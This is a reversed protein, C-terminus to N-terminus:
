GVCALAEMVKRAGLVATERRGCSNERGISGNKGESAGYACCGVCCVRSVARLKGKEAGRSPLRTGERGTPGRPPRHPGPFPIFRPAPPM